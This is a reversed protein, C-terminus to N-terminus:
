SFCLCDTLVSVNPEVLSVQDFGRPLSFQIYREKSLDLLNIVLQDITITDRDWKYHSNYNRLALWNFTDNVCKRDQHLQIPFIPFGQIKRCFDDNDGFRYVRVETRELNKVSARNDMLVAVVKYTETLKDYWFGFEASDFARGEVKVQFM